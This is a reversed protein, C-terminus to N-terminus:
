EDWSCDSEEDENQSLVTARFVDFRGPLRFQDPECNATVVVHARVLKSCPVYKTSTHTSHNSWRELDSYFQDINKDDNSQSRTRDFWLIQHGDYIYLTNTFDAAPLVRFRASCYDFFTTKGTGSENSWIWIIQRKRPEKKLIKLVKKQWKRLEIAPLEAKQPRSSWLQEVWKPHRACIHFLEPDSIVDHWSRHSVIKLAAEKLDNRAGQKARNVVPKTGFEIPDAYRTEEKTCYSICHEHTGRAADLHVECPAFLRKVTNFDTQRNLVLYGQIHLQETTPTKEVQYVMYRFNPDTDPVKFNELDFSTVMWKTYRMHRYHNALREDM